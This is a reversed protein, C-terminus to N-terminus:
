AAAPAAQPPAPTPGATASRRRPGSGAAWWGPEALNWLLFTHSSHPIWSRSGEVQQPGPHLWPSGPAAARWGVVPLVPSQSLNQLWTGEFSWEGQLLPRRATVQPDQSAGGFTRQFFNQRSRVTKKKKKKGPVKWHLGKLKVFDCWQSELPHQVRPSWAADM